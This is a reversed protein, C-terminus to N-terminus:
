RKILKILLFTAKVFNTTFIRMLAYQSAIKAYIEHIYRKVFYKKPSLLSNRTKGCQVTYLHMVRKILFIKEKFYLSKRLKEKDIGCEMLM